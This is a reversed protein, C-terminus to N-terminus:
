QLGKPIEYTRLNIHIRDYKSTNTFLTNAWPSKSPIYHNEPKILAIQFLIM